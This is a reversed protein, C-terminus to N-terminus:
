SKKRRLKKQREELFRCHGHIVHRHAKPRFDFKEAIVDQLNEIHSNKFEFVEGCDLCLIHDHHSEDPLEYVDRGHINQHTPELLGADCLVKINRYVTAAGISPHVRGVRDIIEPADLHGGTELILKAMLWRQETFKLKKRVLYDQFAQKYEEIKKRTPPPQPAEKPRGCPYQSM